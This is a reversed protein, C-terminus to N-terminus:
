APSLCCDVFFRAGLQRRRQLARGFGSLRILEAAVKEVLCGIFLEMMLM